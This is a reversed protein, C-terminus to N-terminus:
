RQTAPAVSMSEVFRRVEELPPQIRAPGMTTLFRAAEAHSRRAQSTSLLASGDDEPLANVSAPISVSVWTSGDATLGQFNWELLRNSLHVPEIFWATLFLWGEGGEFRVRTPFLLFGASADPCGLLAKETLQGGPTRLSQTLAKLPSALCSRRASPAKALLRQWAELSVVDVRGQRVAGPKTVVLETHAPLVWSPKASPDLPEVDVRPAVAVSAGLVGADLTVTQASALSSGLLGVLLMVRM